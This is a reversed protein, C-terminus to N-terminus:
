QEFLQRFFHKKKKKKKKEMAFINKIKWVFKKESEIKMKKGRSNESFDLYIRNVIKKKEKKLNVFHHNINSHNPKKESPLILQKEFKM